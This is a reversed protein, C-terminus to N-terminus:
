NITKIYEVRIVHVYVDYSNGIRHRNVCITADYIKELFSYNKVYGDKRKYIREIYINSAYITIKSKTANKTM